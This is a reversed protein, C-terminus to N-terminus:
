DLKWVLSLWIPSLQAWPTNVGAWCDSPGKRSINSALLAMELGAELGLIPTHPQAADVTHAGRGVLRISGKELYHLDFAGDRTWSESWTYAYPASALLTM